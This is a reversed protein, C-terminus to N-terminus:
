KREFCGFAEVKIEIDPIKPTQVFGPPFILTIKIKTVFVDRPLKMTENVPMPWNQGSIPPLESYLESNPEVVEYRVEVNVNLDELARQLDEQLEFRVGTWEVIVNEFILELSPNSLDVTWINDDENIEGQGAPNREVSLQEDM